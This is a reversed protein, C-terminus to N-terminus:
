RQGVHRLLLGASEEASAFDVRGAVDNRVVLLKSNEAILVTAIPSKPHIQLFARFLVAQEAPCSELVARPLGCSPDVDFFRCLGVDVHCADQLAFRFEDKFSWEQDAAARHDDLDFSVAQSNSWLPRKM